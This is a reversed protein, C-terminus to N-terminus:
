RGEDYEEGGGDEGKYAGEDEGSSGGDDGEYVGEGEGDGDSYAPEDDAPRSRSPQEGFRGGAVAQSRSAAGSSDKYSDVVDQPVSQRSGEIGYLALGYEAPRGDMGKVVLLYDGATLDRFIVPGSGLFNQASDYLFATLGDSDSSVGAGVKAGSLVSFAYAQYERAAIFVGSPLDSPDVKRPQVREARFVDSLSKGRVPRAFVRYEGPGLYAFLHLEGRGGSLVTKQIKANRSLSILAPGYCSLDVYGPSDLALRFSEAKGSLAASGKIDRAAGSDAEVLGEEERGPKSLWARALGGPSRLLLTGNAAPFSSFLRDAGLHRLRGFSGDDGYFEASLDEGALCLLDDPSAKVRLSAGGPGVDLSEFAKGASIEASDGGQPALAALRARAEEKGVNVLYLTSAPLSLSEARRGSVAAISALPTSGKWASVVLGKGALLSLSCAPLEVALAQGAPVAYTERAGPALTKKEGLSYASLAVGILREKGRQREGDWIRARWAGPPLVALSSSATFASAAWSYTPQAPASAPDVEIGCQFSGQTQASAVFVSSAPVAARFAQDTGGIELNAGTQPALSLPEIRAKGESAVAWGVPGSSNFARGQDDLCPFDIGPSFLLEGSTAVASVGEPNDLRYAVGAELTAGQGMPVAKEAYRDISLGAKAPLATWAFLSYSANKGLPVSLRDRGAAVFEDGRYLRFNVPIEADAQIRFLGEADKVDFPVIVGQGDLDIKGSYSRSARDAAIPKRADMRLEVTKERGSLSVLELRYRGKPLRQVMSFNWDAEADDDTALLRGDDFRYLSAAVDNQGLSWLEYYGDFPASLEVSVPRTGVSRSTPLGPALVDTSVGISYSLQNNKEKPKVSLLYDGTGLALSGRSSPPLDADMGPGAIHADMGEVLSLSLVLPAPVSLKYRDPAAKDYWVASLRRNVPLPRPDAGDDGREAELSRAMTLRRSDLDTPLSYISYRGKDLSLRIQGSGSYEPFGDSDEIRIPFYSGLGMSMIEFDGRAKVDLSYKLASDAPLNRRDIAGLALVSAPPLNVRVLRVGARGTSGDGATAEVLYDGPKLFGQMFANRGYGNRSASFISGRMATRVNISTSLRGVTELRYVAPEKLSFVFREPANRGFDRYFVTGEDLRAIGAGFEAIAPKPPVPRPVEVRFGLTQVKASGNRLTLTRTGPKLVSGDRAAQDDVSAEAAPSLRLVGQSPVSVPLALSSKPPLEFRREAQSDSLPYRAFTMAAPTARSNTMVYVTDGYGSPFSYYLGGPADPPEADLTARAGGPLISEQYLVFDLVGLKDPDIELLYYGKTLAFFAKDGSLFNKANGDVYDGLPTLRYAARAGDKREAVRYVGAAGVKVIMSMDGSLLNARQRLPSGGDVSPLNDALVTVVTRNSPRSRTYVIATLDLEAEGTFASYVSLLGGQRLSEWSLSDTYAGGGSGLATYAQLSVQDGPRARLGVIADRDYANVGVSCWNAESKKTISAGSGPQPRQQGAEYASAFLQTDAKDARWLTAQSAGSVLYYDRGFPSVTLQARPGPSLRPIGRRLYLPHGGDGKPWALEPGGHLKLLYLGKDLRTSVTISRMPRGSEAEFIETRPALDLLYQGEKWLEAAQLCRGLAELELPGDQDLYVWYSLTQLDDLGPSLSQGDDIFPWAEPRAGNMEKFALAKLGIAKGATDDGLIRVRYEGKELSMDIRGDCVGSSGDQAIRGEMRDTLDIGVGSSSRAQLSVRGRVKMGLITTRADGPAFSTRGLSPDQASASQASASQAALSGFFVFQLM